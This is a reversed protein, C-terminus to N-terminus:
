KRKHRKNESVYGKRLLKRAPNEKLNRSRRMSFVIINVLIGEDKLKALIRQVQRQTIGVSLSLMNASVNGDQRLLAIIKEENTVVNKVVNITVNTETATESIEKLANRIMELMFEVFRTSDGVNDVQQLVKYYADQNEYALTEVPIWAFIEKWKQLILSQWLRGTRGNGDPFFHYSM